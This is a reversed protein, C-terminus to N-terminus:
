LRAVDRRFLAITRWGLGISASALGASLGFWLGRAGLDAGFALAVGTAFGIAWYAIITIVLPVRIDGAGRLVGAIVVQAGDFLQFLAAILLLSAALETVGPEDHATFLAALPDAFLAFLVASTGMVALTMWVAVAARRRALPTDGQGIAAGVRAGAAGGIGSAFMFTLTACNLAVQHAAGEAQGIAAAVIGTTSFMLFEAALQVSVPLGVRLLRGASTPPTDATRVPVSLNVARRAVVFLVVTSLSTAAGAGAAGLTVVGDVLLADAAANVINALFAALLLPRTRQQSQLVARAALWYLFLVNAPTRWLTYAFAQDAIAAEVDFVQSISAGGLAILALPVSAILTLRSGTRWWSFALAREGAGLAQAVLPELALAIGMGFVLIGHSLANGVGVGALHTADYRGVFLTDVVSMLIVAAQALALPTAVRVM